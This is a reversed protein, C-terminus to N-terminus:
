AARAARVAAPIETAAANAAWLHIFGMAADWRRRM